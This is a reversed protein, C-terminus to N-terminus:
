SENSTAVFTSGGNPFRRRRLSHTACNTSVYSVSSFSSDTRKEPEIGAASADRETLRRAARRLDEWTWTEDPYRLPADPHAANYADFLARNYYLGYQANDSPLAYRRGDLELPQEYQWLLEPLERVVPNFLGLLRLVLRGAVQLRAPQGAAACVQEVM